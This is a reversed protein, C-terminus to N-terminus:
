LLPNRYDIVGILYDLSINFYKAISIKVEDPPDIKGIEYLSISSKKMGLVDSLEKQTTGKNKRVIRLREGIM